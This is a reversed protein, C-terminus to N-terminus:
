TPSCTYQTHSMKPIENSYEIMSIKFPQSSSPALAGFNTEKGCLTFGEKGRMDPRGECQIGTVHNFEQWDSLGIIINGSRKARSKNKMVDIVRICTKTNESHANYM